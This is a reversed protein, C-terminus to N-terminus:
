LLPVDPASPYENSRGQMTDYLAKGVVATFIIAGGLLTLPKPHLDLLLIGWIPVFAMETQAFVTMPVAPVHKSAENFMLTGVVIIVAGHFLAYAMDTAPPILTKGHAITVVSCVLIMLAGYGPLVLSWDRHPDTRVCTTYLAFGVSSLLASINGVMNGAELDGYVTVILGVVGVVLAVITSRNLREGLFRAFVVAVLPTLSSLFAANAPTTTKVAFVFCISALFLGINAGRMARGSRWARVTKGANGRFLAMVEIVVIIGISRWILYQFTDVHVAKRATVTGLSWIIGSGLAMLSAVIPLRPQEM